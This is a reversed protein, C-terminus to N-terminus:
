HSAALARFIPYFINLFGEFKKVGMVKEHVVLLAYFACSWYQFCSHLFRGLIESTIFSSPSRCTCMSDCVDMVNLFMISFCGSAFCGDVFHKSFHIGSCRLAKICSKWRFIKTWNQFWREWLGSKFIICMFNSFTNFCCQYCYVAHNDLTWTIEM